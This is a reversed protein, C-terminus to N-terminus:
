RSHKKTYFPSYFATILWLTGVRKEFPVMYIAKGKRVLLVKQDPYAPGRNIVVKVLNGQGILSVIEPFSIGHKKQIDLNKAPDWDYHKLM